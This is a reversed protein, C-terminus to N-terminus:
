PLREYYLLEHEPLRSPHLIHILDALVADPRVLAQEHIPNGGKPNAQRTNNFVRGAPVSEFRGFRLDAEILSQRTRHVGPQLWFGAGSARLFVRELDLPIGEAGPDDAWLYEGGADAILRATHSRGGPMHWVGAFPAQCFVDPRNAVDVVSAALGEYRDAVENFIQNARAGKDLLAAFVKLWEARGLPHPELYGTTWLVTLNARLLAEPLVSAPDNSGSTLLLDPQLLLVTEADLGPGSPVTQITGDDLAAQVEPNSIYQSSGAGALCDLADLADLYGLPVTELAVVREVPVRLVSVDAPLDPLSADHPLLAFRKEASKASLPNRITLLEYSDATEFSFNEAYRNAGQLTSLTLLAQLLLVYGPLRM